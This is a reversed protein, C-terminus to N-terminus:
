RPSRHGPVSFFQTPSPFAGRKVGTRECPPRGRSPSTTTTVQPDHCRLQAYYTEAPSNRVAVGGMANALAEAANANFAATTPSQLSVTGVRKGAGNVFNVKATYHERNRIITERAKTTYGVCGFPNDAIPVSLDRVATKNVTKQVFDAM